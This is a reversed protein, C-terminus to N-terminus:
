CHFYSFSSRSPLCAKTYQWKRKGFGRYSNVMVRVSVGLGETVLGYFIEMDNLRLCLGQSM